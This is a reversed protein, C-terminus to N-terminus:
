SAQPLLEPDGAGGICLAPEIPLIKFPVVAIFVSM